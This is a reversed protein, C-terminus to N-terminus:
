DDFYDQAQRGSVYPLKSNINRSFLGSHHLRYTEDAETYVMTVAYTSNLIASIPKIMTAAYETDSGVCAIAKALRPPKIGFEECAAYITRWYLEHNERLKAAVASVHQCTVDTIHNWGCLRLLGIAYRHQDYIYKRTMDRDNNSAINHKYTALEEQRIIEIARMPDPDRMIRNWNRYQRRVKPKNYREVFKADIATGYNFDHRLRYKRMEALAEKSVNQQTSLQTCLDEYEHDELDRAAAIAECQIDKIERRIDGYDHAETEGFIDEFESDDYIKAGTQRIIYSLRGTFDNLSLNRVRTNECWVDFYPTTYPKFQGKEDYAPVLGTNDYTTLLNERSRIIASKIAEPTTPYKCRTHGSTELYVVFTHDSVDRIRGIMQMCTEAGCSRDTFYGFCRNFRKIEYSVGASVTPTYILVDCESWYVAVNSFHERKETMSTESSYLRVMLAPYKRRISEEIVRAEELTNIQIAVKEESDLCSYLASLWKQKDPTFYYKDDCANQYTNCHYICDDTGRLANIIRYTRDSIVADMLVVHKSYRMLYTFKAFCDSFNRLLGSDFQEFISECEDLILLDPKEATLNLRHLSEVQVILRDQTLPGKVDSYLTFDPFKEKVNGSFTQRFSIFRIVNPTLGVGAPFYSGLYDTLAKTKGMKMMAHVVLTKCLEFKRLAPECYTHSPDFLTNERVFEGFAAKEIAKETQEAAVLTKPDTTASVSADGGGYQPNPYEGIFIASGNKEAKFRRCLKFVPITPKKPNVEISVLTTNDSDHTRECQECMSPRTRKYIFLTGCQKHYKHDRVYPAAIRLVNELDYDTAPNTKRSDTSAIQPLVECDSVNTILTRTRDTTNGDGSGDATTASVGVRKIRMDGKHCGIIRFNQLRKNVSVDIYDAYQPLLKIVQGTFYNCSTATTCYGQVILHASLKISSDNSDSICRTIESLERDYLIYFVIRITNEIEDLIEEFNDVQTTIDIDFKLKQHLDFIVEQFTRSEVEVSDCYDFFKLHSDFVLYRRKVSDFVTFLHELDDLAYNLELVASAKHPFDPKKIYKFVKM